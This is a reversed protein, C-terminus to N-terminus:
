REPGLPSGPNGSPGVEGSVRSLFQTLEGCQRQLRDFIYPALVPGLQLNAELQGLHRRLAAINAPTVAVNRCQLPKCDGLDPATGAEGSIKNRCLAKDPNYVCAVYEGFYIKPDDRSMILAMRKRDTVVTGQFWVKREFEAIRRRAEQASPGALDDHEHNEILTRLQDGREIAQEAEVEARFGSDSTGAYGEFMQISQHRYQIAGAISGGPQRAIFWALTRRFQSTNLMWVKGRVLPIGDARGHDRCYDNIWHCLKKLSELTTTNTLAFEGYKAYNYGVSGPLPTILYEVDPEQLQELLRVAREVPESIVWTATVGTPSREGKFALSTILRRVVNGDVDRRRSTCGRRLHKIESDRMGSLYAIVVYCATRLTIALTPVDTYRIQSTWPEGDLAGTIPTDLYADDAVGLEAVADALWRRERANLGHRHRGVQRSLFKRNVGGRTDGPLSRGQARYRDLLARFQESWAKSDGGLAAPNWRHALRQQAAPGAIVMFLPRWERRAAILDPGVEDILWLSWVLLPSIVEPPIRETLNEVGKNERGARTWGELTYPDLMLHDAPLYERYIWFARAAARLARRSADSVDRAVVFSNFAELDADAVDALSRIGRSDIWELFTKVQTFHSRIRGIGARSQGPLLPGALFAFLLEKAVARFAAPLTQFYLKCSSQHAQHLAPTLDWIDEAFRSTSQLDEGDRLTLEALVLRDARAQPSCVDRSVDAAM